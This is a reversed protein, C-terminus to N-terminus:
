LLSRTEPGSHHLIPPLLLGHAVHFDASDNQSQRAAVSPMSYIVRFRRLIQGYVVHYPCADHYVLSQRVLHSVDPCSSLAPVLVEATGNEGHVWVNPDTGEEEDGHTWVISGDHNAALKAVSEGIGDPVLGWHWETDDSNELCDLPWELSVDVSVLKSVDESEWVKIIVLFKPVDHKAYSVVTWGHMSGSAVSFGGRYRWFHHLLEPNLVAPLHFMSVLFFSSAMATCALCSM